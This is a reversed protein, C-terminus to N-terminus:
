TCAQHPTLSSELFFASSRFDLKGLRDSTSVGKCCSLSFGSHLEQIFHTPINFTKNLRLLSAASTRKKKKLSRGPFCYIVFAV